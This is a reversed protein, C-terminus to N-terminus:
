VCIIEEAGKFFEFILSEVAPRFNRWSGVLAYFKM